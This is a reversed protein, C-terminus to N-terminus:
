KEPCKIRDYDWLGGTLYIPFVNHDRREYNHFNLGLIYQSKHLNLWHLIPFQLDSNRVEWMICKSFSFWLCLSNSALHKIFKVQRGIRDQASPVQHDRIGVSQYLHSQVWNECESTPSITDMKWTIFLSPSTFYGQGFDCLESILTSVSQRVIYVM